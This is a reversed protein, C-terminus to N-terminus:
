QPASLEKLPSQRGTVVNTVPLHEILKIRAEGRVFTLNGAPNRSERVPSQIFADRPQVPQFGAAVDERLFFANHGWSNSGVLIYGKKRALYDLAGLSCGFYMGSYHASRKNFDEQYPVSVPALGFLGNYEVIVIRPRISEIAEWIWYENGDIDISLLGVDEAFGAAAILENINQKTIWTQRAQLDFQWYLKDGQIYRVDSSSADLVLGQWRNNMLLFRTNSEEYDEVGFEVFTKDPIPIHSILYQIIGDEDWQSFVKFGVDRFSSNVPMTAVQRAM